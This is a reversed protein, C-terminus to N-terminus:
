ALAVPVPSVCSKGDNATTSPWTRAKDGNDGRARKKTNETSPARPATAM